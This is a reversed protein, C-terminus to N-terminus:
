INEHPEEWERNIIELPVILNWNAVLQQPRKLSRDLFQPQRPILKKLESLYSETIMWQEQHTDLFFGVRAATTANELLQIYHIVKDFNLYEISEL